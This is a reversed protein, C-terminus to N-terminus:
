TLGGTFAAAFDTEVDGIGAASQAGINSRATTQQTSDFTQSADVRVRNGLATTIATISDDAGDLAAALEALTDLAGPAGNVLATIAAAIENSIKTISWTQTTSSSSADNISVGGIGAIDSHLENLAAVLNSKNETNLSALNGRKTRQDNAETTVATVLASIRTVLSM